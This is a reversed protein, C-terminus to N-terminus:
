LLVEHSFFPYLGKKTGPRELKNKLDETVTVHMFVVSGAMKALLRNQLPTAQKLTARVGQHSKKDHLKQLFPWEKKLEKRSISVKM